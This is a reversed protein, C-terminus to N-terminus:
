EGGETSEGSKEESVGDAADGPEPNGEFRAWLKEFRRRMIRFLESDDLTTPHEETDFSFAFTETEDDSLPEKTVTM